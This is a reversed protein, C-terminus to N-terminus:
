WINWRGIHESQNCSGRALAAVQCGSPKRVENPLLTIRINLAKRKRFSNEAPSGSALSKGIQHLSILLFHPLSIMRVVSRYGAFSGLAARHNILTSCATAGALFPARGEFGNQAEPKDLVLSEFVIHMTPSRRAMHLSSLRSPPSPVWPGGCSSSALVLLSSPYPRALGFCATPAFRYSASCFGTGDASRVAALIRSGSRITSTTDTNTSPPLSSASSDATLSSSRSILLNRSPVPVIVSMMKAPSKLRWSWSQPPFSM